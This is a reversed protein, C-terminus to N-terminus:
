NRSGSKHAELAARSILNALELARGAREAEAMTTFQTASAEPTLDAGCLGCNRNLAGSTFVAEGEAEIAAATTQRPDWMLAISCHRKPCLWQTIWVKM